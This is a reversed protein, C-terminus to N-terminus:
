MFLRPLFKPPANFPASKGSAVEYLREHSTRAAAALPEYVRNCVDLFGINYHEGDFRGVASEDYLTFYHVGVCQPLVAATETYYRFADGRETQTAVRGIGSAPLGVDLAGFHWEGIIVPKNMVKTIAELREPPVRDEYCNISFVDFHHMGELAWRPPVTYYRAGLNLHNPDVKQCALSLERMLRGVMETSFKELDAKAAATFEGTWRGRALRQFTVDMGWRSSLYKDTRYQSVMAVSLAKRTECAETNLLMGEAPSQSAFGWTPENMLFYGIMAPDNATDKLQQAFNACDTQFYVDYVDPFDRFIMPTKLRLALPRVYPFGAKKAVEWHSWNGVTNFGFDRLHSLMIRQWNEGWTSGFAKMFNAVLFNVGQRGIINTMKPPIWALASEIGDITSEINPSVCDMGTSWFLHGDPDVLWWRRGDHHTRFFGTADLKPGNAFGGWRSFTAPWTKQEASANQAHLRDLMEAESRTRGPWEHLTSQGLGDLLKGRPLVPETLKPPEQSTVLIPTIAFHVPQGDSRILRLEIRTVKAPDVAAGGCMPKLWAGERNLGWCNQSM